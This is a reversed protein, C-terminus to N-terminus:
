SQGRGGIGATSARWEAMVDIGDNVAVCVMDTWARALRKSASIAAAVRPLNVKRYPSTRAAAAPLMADPLSHAASASHCTDDWSQAHQATLADANMGDRLTRYHRARCCAWRLHAAPPSARPAAAAFRLVDRLHTCGARPLRRRRCFTRFLASTCAAHPVCRVPLPLMGGLADYLTGPEALTDCLLLSIRLLRAAPLSLHPLGVCAITRMHLSAWCVFRLNHHARSFVYTRLVPQEAGYRDGCRKACM